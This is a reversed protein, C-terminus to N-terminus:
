KKTKKKKDSTGECMSALGSHLKPDFQTKPPYCRMSGYEEKFKKCYLRLEKMSTEFDVKQLVSM